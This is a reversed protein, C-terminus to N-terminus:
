PSLRPIRVQQQALMKTKLQNILKEMQVQQRKSGYIFQVGVGSPAEKRQWVVKAQLTSAFLNGPFRLVVDFLAGVPLPHEMHILAGKTSIDDTTAAQIDDETAAKVPLQIGFRRDERHTLIVEKGMAFDLLKQRPSSDNPKFIVGIGPPVPPTAKADQHWKIEGRVRFSKSESAFRLELDIETGVAFSYAGQVFLGDEGNKEFYISDIERHNTLPVLITPRM